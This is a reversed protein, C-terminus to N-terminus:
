QGSAFAHPDFGAPGIPMAQGPPPGAQPPPPPNATASQPSSGGLLLDKLSRVKNVMGEVLGNTPAQAPSASATQPSQSFGAVLKNIRDLKAGQAQGFDKVYSNLQGGAALTPAFHPAKTQFESQADQYESNLNQAHGKYAEVLAQHVAPPLGSASLGTFYNAMKEADNQINSPAFKNLLALTLRTSKGDALKTINSIAAQDGEKTGQSLGTLGDQIQQAKASLDAMPKQYHTELNNYEDKTTKMMKQQMAVQPDVGVSLDGAKAQAGPNEEKIKDLMAKDLQQKDSVQKGELFSKLRMNSDENAQDMGTKTGQTAANALAQAQASRYPNSYDQSAIKVEPLPTNIAM